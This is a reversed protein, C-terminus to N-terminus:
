RKAQPSSMTRRANASGFLQVLPIKTMRALEKLNAV